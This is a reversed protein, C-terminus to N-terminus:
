GIELLSKVNTISEGPLLSPVTKAPNVTLSDHPVRNIFRCLPQLEDVREICFCHFLGDDTCHQVKNFYKNNRYHREFTSKCFRQLQVTDPLSCVLDM